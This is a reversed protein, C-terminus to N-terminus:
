EREITLKKHHHKKDTKSSKNKGTWASGDTIGASTFLVALLLHFFQM